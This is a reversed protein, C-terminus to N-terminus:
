NLGMGSFPHSSDSTIVSVAGSTPQLTYTQGPQICTLAGASTTGSATGQENICLNITAGIPNLLWGGATRHGATLATVATGGTTVTSVDLAVITRSGPTTVVTSNADPTVLLKTMGSIGQVTVVNSSAVGATGPASGAITGSDTGIAVRQAGTGVAGAGALTTVGNVQKLNEQFVSASVGGALTALNGGSELALLSTNLNTGANATVSGSIPQTSSSADVRLAGTTTLSLPSTQTTTYTPAGTTVAGLAMAGKQGSTTSGQSVQLGTVSADLALSGSTGINATVTGSVPQTAQWFTGSVPQTAQWFTGTVPFTGGTGTVLLATANAGTNALTVQLPTTSTGVEVGSANRLNTHFARNVTLQVLGQQGTTLPNSTATTQFFGGSPAFVSVGATFSAEDAASAGSGSCNACQVNLNNSTSAIVNGSGDVIQTKQNGNTQTASLALASTNLNTGANVTFATNAITPQGSGNLTLGVSNGGNNGGLYTISGPVAAGTAGVSNNVVSISGTIPIPNTSSVGQLKGSGDITGLETSSAPATADNPGVSANDATISGTIPLAGSSNPAACHQPANPDCVAVSERLAPPAAAYTPLASIAWLSAILGLGIKLRIM